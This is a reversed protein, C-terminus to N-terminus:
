HKVEETSGLLTPLIFFTCFVSYLLALTLLEGMGSTGPHSSLALSGFAVLNTAASFLVARAMGSQLPNIHGARWYTVFYIAYSVGLSLLLPLAIINAFNLPLNIVVTTALALGCALLLPALLLIVHRVRRLVVLALIGIAIVANIGAQLFARSVTHGSERISIPTGTADPTLQRVADTFLILFKRDRPDGKPYAEVLYRGDSTVWDRKLDDGITDVTVPAATLALRVNDLKAVLSAVLNQHLRLLTEHDPHAVAADLATALTGAAPLQPAIAHAAEAVKKLSDYLENDTPPAQTPAAGFTPQLLTAADAIQALKAQQDDPVFDAITMAHDVSPLRNLKNALDQAQALSPRLVQIAYAPSNPTRMIDFMTSVSETRPDKLNLPDFDFRLHVMILGAAIAAVCAFALVIRRHRMLFHDVPAAWLYGVPEREAPPRTVQLLAPLLTLNLFFAILMGAGAILGLESVGRYATPIFAFFGLATAGAAMSLPLAITSATRQMATGLDPERYYQDRFRVGFQIGFDVAIGIFMVAFAVSILNFSGVAMLAFATTMILGAGLTLLIPGVLRPSRLAGFLLLIVLAGSLLTAFGAGNAVSAFEEDNLAVAGTMRVHVGNDPTLNLLKIQERVTDRAESGPELANYNLIPKTLIFKRTSDLPATNANANSGPMMSQWDLPKSKGALTSQITDAIARIPKDFQNMDAAGQAAGQMMLGITSFFGRLSPDSALTGLLPQAQVLQDLVDSLQARSLYLLGNKRFFPIADPREVLTFRQPMASLKQTLTDAANEAIDPTDGDIVIVLNDSKQPFAAELAKENRRWDLDASIMQNIDTNVKFHATIYFGLAVSILLSAVIIPWAFRRSLNVLSTVFQTLM